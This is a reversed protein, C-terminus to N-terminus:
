MCFTGSHEYVTLRYKVAGTEPLQIQKRDGSNKSKMFNWLTILVAYEETLTEWIREM